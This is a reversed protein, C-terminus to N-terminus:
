FDIDDVGLKKLWDCDDQAASLGPHLLLARAFYHRPVQKPPVNAHPSALGPMLIALDWKVVGCLVTFSM